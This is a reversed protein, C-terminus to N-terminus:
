NWSMLLPLLPDLVLFCLPLFVFAALHLLLLSLSPAFCHFPLSFHLLFIICKVKSSTHFHCFDRSMLLTHPSHILPRVAMVNGFLTCHPSLRSQWFTQMHSFPPRRFPLQIILQQRGPGESEGLLERCGLPKRQGNLGRRM